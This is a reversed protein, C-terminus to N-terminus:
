ERAPPFGLIVELRFFLQIRANALIVFSDNRAQRPIWLIDSEFLDVGRALPKEKGKDNGDKDDNGRLRSDM